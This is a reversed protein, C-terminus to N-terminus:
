VVVAYCLCPWIAVFAFPICVLMAILRTHTHICRITYNNVLSVTPYMHACLVLVCVCLVAATAAAATTTTTITALHQQSTINKYHVLIFRLMTHYVRVTRYACKRAVAIYICYITKHRMATDPCSVSSLLGVFVCKLM